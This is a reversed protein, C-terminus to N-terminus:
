SIKPEVWDPNVFDQILEDEALPILDADPNAAGTTGSITADSFLELKKVWNLNGFGMGIIKEAWTEMRSGRVDKYISTPMFNLKLGGFKKPAFAYINGPRLTGTKTTRNWKFTQIKSDNLGVYSQGVKDYGMQDATWLDVTAADNKTILVEQGSAGGGKKGWFLQRLAVLDSKELPHVLTSPSAGDAIAGSGKMVSKVPVGVTSDYAATGGAQKYMFEVAAQLHLLFERDEVMGFYFGLNKSWTVPYNIVATLLDKKDWSLHQTTLKSFGIKYKNDRFIHADGDGRVNLSMAWGPRINRQYAVYYMDNSNPNSMDYQMNPDNATVTKEKLFHGNFSGEKVYGDVVEASTRLVDSNNSAVKEFFTTNTLSLNNNNFDM